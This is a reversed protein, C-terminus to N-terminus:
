NLDDIVYNFGGSLGGTLREFTIHDVGYDRIFGENWVLQETGPGHNMSSDDIVQEKLIKNCRPCKQRMTCGKDWFIVTHSWVGAKHKFICLFKNYLVTLYDQSLLKRINNM